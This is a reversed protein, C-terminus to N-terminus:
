NFINNLGQVLESFLPLVVMIVVILMFVCVTAFCNRKVKETKKQHYSFHRNFMMEEMKELFNENDTYLLDEEFIMCFRQADQTKIREKLVNAYTKGDFTIAYAASAKALISNLQKDETIKHMNLIADKPRVGAQIQSVLYRYLKYANKQFIDCLDKEWKRKTLYLFFLCLMLVVFAKLFGSSIIVLICIVLFFSCIMVFEGAKETSVYTIKSVTKKIKQYIESLFTIKGDNVSEAIRMSVVHASFLIGVAINGIFLMYMTISDM